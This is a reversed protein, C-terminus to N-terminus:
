ILRSENQWKELLSESPLLHHATEPIILIIARRRNPFRNFLDQWIQQLEEVKLPSLLLDLNYILVCNSSGISSAISDLTSIVKPASLHVVEAGKQLHEYYYRSIDVAQAGLNVAIEAEKGIKSLPVRWLGVRTRSAGRCLLEFLTNPDTPAM